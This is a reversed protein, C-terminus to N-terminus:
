QGDHQRTYDNTTNALIIKDTANIALNGSGTIKAKMDNAGDPTTEDGSFTM